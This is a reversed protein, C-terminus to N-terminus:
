HGSRRALHVSGGLLLDNVGSLHEHPRGVERSGRGPATRHLDWHPARRRVAPLARALADFSLRPGALTPPRAGRAAVLRRSVADRSAPARKEFRAIVAARIAQQTGLAHPLARRLWRQATRRDPGDHHPTVYRHLGLAADLWCWLEVAVLMADHVTGLDDPPRSHTSRSRDALIWRRKLVPVREVRGDVLMKRTAETWGHVHWGAAPRTGRWVLVDGALEYGGGVV